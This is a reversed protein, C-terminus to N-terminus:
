TKKNLDVSVDNKKKLSILLHVKVLYQHIVSLVNRHFSNAFNKFINSDM